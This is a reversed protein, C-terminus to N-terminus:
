QFSSWGKTKNWVTGILHLQDLQLLKRLPLQTNFHVRTVTKILHPWLKCCCLHVFRRLIVTIIVAHHDPPKRPKRHSEWSNNRTLKFHRKRGFCSRSRSFDCGWTDYPTCIESAHSITMYRRSHTHTNTQGRSQKTPPTSFVYKQWSTSSILRKHKTNKIQDGTSTNELQLRYNISFSSNVFFVNETWFGAALINFRASM